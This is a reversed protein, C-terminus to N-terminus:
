PPEVDGQLWWWCCVELLYFNLNNFFWVVNQGNNPSVPKCILFFFFYLLLLVQWRVSPFTVLLVSGKVTSLPNQSVSGSYSSRKFRQGSTERHVEESAPYYRKCGSIGWAGTKALAGTVWCGSWRWARDEGPWVQTSQPLRLLLGRHSAWM